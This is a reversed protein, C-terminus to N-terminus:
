NKSWNALVHRACMRQEANPLLTAIAKDLGLKVFWKWTFTNKVEVIAWALSLMQNNGDKCVVVLLQGRSVSQIGKKLADFCIYFSQFMKRGDEFTEESFRVVCTSGPNTRLFEDRYDLIRKFEEVHDGM